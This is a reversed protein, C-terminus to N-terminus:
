KILAFKQTLITNGSQLRVFYVGSPLDDATFAVQHAGAEMKGNTLQTALRGMGDWVSVNIMEDHPLYFSIMGAGNTPNPYVTNLRFKTPQDDPADAVLPEVVLEVPIVLPDGAGNHDITLAIAYRGQDLFEASLTLTIAQENGPAINGEIIDASIWGYNVGADFLELRDGAPNQIITALTWLRTDRNITLECGGARDGDQLEFDNLTIIHGNNPNM